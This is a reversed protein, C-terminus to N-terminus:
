PKTQKAKKDEHNMGIIISVLIVAFLIYTIYENM